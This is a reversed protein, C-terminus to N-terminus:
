GKTFHMISWHPPNDKVNTLKLGANKCTAEAEKARSSPYLLVAQGGARLHFSAFAFVDHMTCTVESRCIAKAPNPSLIGQGLKQWPPNAYILDYAAETQCTRLDAHIFRIPLKLAMANQVSIDHLEKQIEMGSIIWDPHALALLISILGSGSGLELVSNKEPLLFGRLYEYLAASASTAGLAKPVQRMWKEPDYPNLALRAVANM